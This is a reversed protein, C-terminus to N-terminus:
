DPWGTLRENALGVPIIGMGKLRVETTATNGKGDEDDSDGNDTGDNDKNASVDGGRRRM